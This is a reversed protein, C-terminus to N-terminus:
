FPLHWLLKRYHLSKALESLQLNSCCGFDHSFAVLGFVDQTIMKMFEDISSCHVSERGNSCSIKAQINKVLTRTKLITVRRLHTPDLKTQRHLASKLASQYYKWEKVNLLLLNRKGALMEFHRRLIPASHRAHHNKLLRQADEGSTLSM